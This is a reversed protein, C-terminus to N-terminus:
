HEETGHENEEERDSRGGRAWYSQSQWSYLEPSGLSREATGDDEDPDDNEDDELPTGVLSQRSQRWGEPM